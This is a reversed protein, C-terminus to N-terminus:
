FKKSIQDLAQPLNMKNQQKENGLLIKSLILMAKNDVYANQFLDQLNMNQENLNMKAETIFM